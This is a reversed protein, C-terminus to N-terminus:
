IHYILHYLTIQVYTTVLTFGLAVLLVFLYIFSIWMIFYAYLCALVVFIIARFPSLSLFYFLLLSFYFLIWVASNFGAMHIVINSM